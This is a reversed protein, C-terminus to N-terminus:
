GAAVYITAHYSAAENLRVSSTYLTGVLVFSLAILFLRLCARRDASVAKSFSQSIHLLHKMDNWVSISSGSPRELLLKIAEIHPFEHYKEVM